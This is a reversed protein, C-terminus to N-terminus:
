LCEIELAAIKEVQLYDNVEGQEMRSLLMAHSAKAADLTFENADDFLAILYDLMSEHCDTRRAHFPM